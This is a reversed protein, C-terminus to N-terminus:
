QDFAKGFAMRAYRAERHKDKTPAQFYQNVVVAPKVKVAGTVDRPLQPQFAAAGTINRPLRPTFGPAVGRGAAAGAAGGVIRPLRLQPLDPGAEFRGAAKEGPTPKQLRIGPGLVFDKPVSSPDFITMIVDAITGKKPQKVKKQLAQTIGDMIEKIKSRVDGGVRGLSGSLIQRLHNLRAQMRPTDLITGSVADELRGLRKQLAKASPLPVDGTPGFGILAFQQAQRRAAATEKAKKAADKTQQAQQGLLDNIKSQNQIRQQELAITKGQEREAKAIAANWARLAAIDDDLTKTLSARDVNLALADFAAQQKSQRVQAETQMVSWLQDEYEKKKQIDKTAAIRQTLKAAVAQYLALQKDLPAAGARELARSIASDFLQQAAQAQQQRVQKKQQGVQWVEDQLQKKRAIDKTLAIQKDLSVIVKQLAAAQKDLPLTGIRELTRGIGADFAAEADKGLQEQDSKITRFVGRLTGELTLRRTIDKTISIRNQIIGAIQKLRAIQGQVTPIDQVLDLMRGVMADFWQNREAAKEASSKGKPAADGGFDIKPRTVKVPGKKGAADAADQITKQAAAIADSVDGGITSFGSTYSDAAKKGEDGATNALSDLETQFIRKLDQFPGGGLYRPIHSLPEVIKLAVKLMLREADTALATLGAQLGKWVLSAIEKGIGLLLNAIGEIATIMHQVVAKFLGVWDVSVLFKAVAALALVLGDVLARGVAQWNVSRVARDLLNLGRILLQSVTQAFQEIVRAWNVQRLSEGAATLADKIKEGVTHAVQGWDIRSIQQQAAVIGRKLLNYLARGANEIGEWVVELKARITRAASLRKVFEVSATIGKTFAPVVQGVITGGVNRLTERLINLQGPLTRGAAEAQGGFEKTLEALIFKQAEMTHGSEVMAKVQDRQQQNFNVGIRRLQSVGRIPDNLAKGLQIAATKTDTGMVTSVDAMVKTAQDFIDNGKGVENRINTFTLLLNEGKQIAEDDIGTVGSISSALDDIHKATVNAVGGTTYLVQNTEAAVAQQQKWEDVSAGIADGLGDFAKAVSGVVLTSKVLTGVGVGIKQVSSGFKKASTDASRFAKELNSTDGVIEVVLKRAM